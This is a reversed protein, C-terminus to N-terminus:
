SKRALWVTAGGCQPDEVCHRVVHFGHDALLRRYADPSLSAHFLPEGEFTGLALGEGPGSTFMLAADAAAHESFRQFMRRQEEMTLHFLSNWAILGAFRRGLSLQRMDAVHWEEAPFRSRCLGVLTESSDVGTLALGRGILDAAIPDGSGCGIDLVTAGPPLLAAFQDLWRKEVLTKDRLRDFAGAHREYLGIIADAENSM